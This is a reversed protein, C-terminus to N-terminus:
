VRATFYVTASSEKRRRKTAAGKTTIPRSIVYEGDPFYITRGPNKDIIDQIHTTVDEGANTPIYDTVDVFAEDSKGITQKLLDANSLKVSKESLQDAYVYEGAYLQRKAYKGIVKEPDSIINKPINVNKFKKVEVDAKKIKRSATVDNVLVVVEVIGDDSVSETQKSESEAASVSFPILCVVICFALMVSIIQKFM